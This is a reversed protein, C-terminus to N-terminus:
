FESEMESDNVKKEQASSIIIDDAIQADQYAKKLKANLKASSIGDKFTKFKAWTDLTNLYEIIYGICFSRKEEESYSM